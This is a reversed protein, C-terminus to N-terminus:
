LNIELGEYAIDLEISGMKQANMGMYAKATSLVSELKKDDYEPEHHFLVLRKVGFKRAIDIAISGSSHGFDIKEISEEFTYQADFVVVDANRFLEEYKDINDVEHINFECDSTFVFSRGKEEIRFGYSGGPHPMKMNFISVDNLYFYEGEEIHYFEKTAQMYDLTIPFHSFAHQYDLRSRFDRVPSYFNFRNGKIYFPIFFPIGQIHDWHTHTLLINGVGKGKGFESKMLQRGMARLGSGCDIIIVDSSDTDVQIAATNGGYTGRVSLPLARVFSDISERSSIDGPRALSLAETIKKEIAEISLPTPISGRVGWFRIKM